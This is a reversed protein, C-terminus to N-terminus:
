TGGKTRGDSGAGNNDKIVENLWAEANTVAVEQKQVPKSKTWELVTRGASVKTAQNTMPGLCITVMEELVRKAKAEDSDPIVVKPLQGEDEMIKIFKRAKLRAIKWLKEADKARMGDPIGCRRGKWGNPNAEKYQRMKEAMHARYEPDRWRAKYMESAAPNKHKGKNPRPSRKRKGKGKIAEEMGHCGM